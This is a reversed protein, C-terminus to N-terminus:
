RGADPHSIPASLVLHLFRRSAIPRFWVAITLRDPLPATRGEHLASTLDAPPHRLRRAVWRRGPDTMALRAAEYRLVDAAWLPGEGGCRVLRDAASAFALADGQPGAKGEFRHATAHRLFLGDFRDTGLARRSM